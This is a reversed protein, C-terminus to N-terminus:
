CYVPSEWYNEWDSIIHCFQFIIQITEFLWAALENVDVFVVYISFLHKFRFIDEHRPFFIIKSFLNFFNVTKQVNPSQALPEIPM